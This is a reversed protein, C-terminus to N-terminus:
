EHIDRFEYRSEMPAALGQDVDSLGAGVLDEVIELALPELVIEPLPGTLAAPIGLVDLDDIGIQSLGAAGGHTALPQLLEDSPDREALDADDEGVIDGPQRPVAGLPVLQEIEATVTVAEDAVAIPDVVGGSGIPVEQEPEFALDGLQLEM